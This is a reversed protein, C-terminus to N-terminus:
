VVQLFALSYEVKNTRLVAVILQNRRLESCIVVSM